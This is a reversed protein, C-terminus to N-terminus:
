EEEWGIFLEHVDHFGAVEVFEYGDGHVRAETNREKRTSASATYGAERLAELLMKTAKINPEPEFELQFKGKERYMGLKQSWSGKNWKNPYYAHYETLKLEKYGEKDLEEILRDLESSDELIEKVRKIANKRHERKRHERDREAQAEAENKDKERQRARKDLEKKNLL